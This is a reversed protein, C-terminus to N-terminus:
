AVWTHTRQGPVAALYVVGLLVVLSGEPVSLRAPERQLVDGPTRLGAFRNCM